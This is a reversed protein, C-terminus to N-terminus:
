KAIEYDVANLSIKSTWSKGHKRMDDARSGEVITVDFPLTMCRFWVCVIEGEKTIEINLKQTEHITGKHGYIMKRESTGTRTWSSMSFGRGQERLVFPILKDLIFTQVSKKVKM